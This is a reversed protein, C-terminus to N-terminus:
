RLKTRNLRRANSVAKRHVPALGKGLIGLSANRMQAAMKHSAPQGWSSPTWFATFWAMAMAQYAQMAQMAMAQWAQTFALNKESVMGSFEKRDRASPNPGALAMRTLRHAMVQPVAVAMESAKVAMSTTRRSASNSM